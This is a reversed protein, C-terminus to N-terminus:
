AQLALLRAIWERQHPKVKKHKPNKIQTAYHIKAIELLKEAVAKDDPNEALKDLWEGKLAETFHQKATDNTEQWHHTDIADLLAAMLPSANAKASELQKAAQEAQQAKKIDERLNDTQKEDYTMFGYGTQSKAGAGMYTLAHNLCAFVDAIAIDSNPRKGITFLFTASKVALFPVPVPDHWDAPVKDSDRHADSIQGGDSYWKGMHPTMIDATLTPAMGYPLADFFILEGVQTESAQKDESGFWKFLIAKKDGGQYHQEIVSRVLGKVQSGSLYPTGLTYHWLFGNEVPHENGMGTVFHGDLAYIRGDGGIHHTLAMQRTAVATLNSDNSNPKKMEKLFDKKANEDVSASNQSLAYQDFFREFFLGKNGKDLNVTHSHSAYIPTSM